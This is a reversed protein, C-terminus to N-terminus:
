SGESCLHRAYRKRVTTNCMKKTYAHFGSVFRNKSKLLAIKNPNKYIKAPATPFSDEKALFSRFSM